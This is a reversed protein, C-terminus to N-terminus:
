KNSAASVLLGMVPSFVLSIFLVATYGLQKGRATEAAVFSMVLWAIIIYVIMM